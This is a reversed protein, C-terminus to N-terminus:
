EDLLYMAVVHQQYSYQLKILFKIKLIFSKIKIESKEPIEQELDSGNSRQVVADQLNPFFDNHNSHKHRKLSHIEIGIVNKIEM